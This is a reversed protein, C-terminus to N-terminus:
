STLDITSGHGQGLPRYRSTQEEVQDLSRLELRAQDRVASLAVHLSADLARLEGAARLTGALLARTGQPDAPEVAIRALSLEELAAGSLPILIGRADLASELAAPDAARLAAIARETATRLQALLEEVARASRDLRRVSAPRNM